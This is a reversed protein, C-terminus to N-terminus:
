RATTKKNENRERLNYLFGSGTYNYCVQYFFALTNYYAYSYEISRPYPSQELPM